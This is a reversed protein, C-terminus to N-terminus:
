GRTTLPFRNGEEDQFMSWRGFPMDVPEQAFTV